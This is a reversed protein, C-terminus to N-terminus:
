SHTAVPEAPNSIRTAQSVFASANFGKAILWGGVFVEWLGGPIESVLGLGSGMLAAVMGCVMMAYGVLGWVAIWRPILRARYFLFNLMVGALGLAIWGITNAYQGAQILVTSLAQLSSTTPAVAKLYASGLPLQLLAFLVYMALFVSDIIRAALYGIALRESHPKLVPFMLVGHAADGVCAMLWLIAGISLMVSHAAVTSLSNPAGLISQILGNGPIGVIFGAIYIVGVVRAATRYTNMGEQTTM